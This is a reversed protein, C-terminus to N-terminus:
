LRGAFKKRFSNLPKIHSETLVKGAYKMDDSVYIGNDHLLKFGFKWARKEERLIADAHKKNFIVGLKYYFSLRM